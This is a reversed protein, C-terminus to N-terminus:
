PPTSASHWTSRLRDPTLVDKLMFAAAGCSELDDSYDDCTSVLVIVADAHNARIRRTAEIGDIGPLRVDMLVLDPRLKRAVDVSEEGTEAVGVLDFGEMSSVLGAAAERFPAGDDVVLVNVSM